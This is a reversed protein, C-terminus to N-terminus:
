FYIKLKGLLKCFIIVDGAKEQCCSLPMYLQLKGFIESALVKWNGILKSVIFAGSFIFQRKRKAKQYIVRVIKGIFIYKNIKCIRHPSLRNQCRSYFFFVDLWHLEVDNDEPSFPVAHNSYRAIAHGASLLRGVV